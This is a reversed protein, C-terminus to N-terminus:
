FGSSSTVISTWTPFTTTSGESGMAFSKTLVWEPSGGRVWQVEASMQWSIDRLPVWDSDAAGSKFMLVMRADWSARTKDYKPVVTLTIPDFGDYPTEYAKFKPTDPAVRVTRAVYPYESDLGYGAATETEGSVTDRRSYGIGITQVWQFEGDITDSRDFQMGSIIAGSANRRVLQAYTEDGHAVLEVDGSDPNITVPGGGLKKPALVDIKASKTTAKEVGAADVLTVSAAIKRSGADVWRFVLSPKALDGAPVPDVFGTTNGAGQRYALFLTGPITWAVAKPGIATVEASVKDGIYLTQPVAVADATNVKITWKVDALALYASAIPASPSGIPVVRVAISATGEELAEVYFSISNV